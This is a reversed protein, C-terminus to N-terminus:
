RGLILMVGTELHFGRPDAKVEREKGEVRYKLYNSGNMLSLQDDYRPLLNGIYSGRCMFGFGFLRFVWASM